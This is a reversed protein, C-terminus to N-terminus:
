GCGTAGQMIIKNHGQIMRSRIENVLNQQYNRLEIM